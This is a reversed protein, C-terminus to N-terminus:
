IAARFKLNLAIEVPVVIKGASSDGLSLNMVGGMNEIEDFLRAPM